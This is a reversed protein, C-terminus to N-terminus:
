MKPPEPHAQIDASLEKIQQIIYDHKFGYKDGFIDRARDMANIAANLALLGRARDQLTNINYARAEM